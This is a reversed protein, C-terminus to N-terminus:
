PLKKTRPLKKARAAGGAVRVPTGGPRPTAPEAEGLVRLTGGPEVDFGLEVVFTRLSAGRWLEASNKM